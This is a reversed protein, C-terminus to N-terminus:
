QEEDSAEEETVLEPEPEKKKPARRKKAPAETAPEPAAETMKAIFKDAHIIHRFCFWHGSHEETGSTGCVDGKNNFGSCVHKVPVVKEKKPKNRSSKDDDSTEGQIHRWVRDMLEKKNGGVKLNHDKCYQNLIGTTCNRLDDLKEATAPDELKDAKLVKSTKAAAAAPLPTNFLHKFMDEICGVVLQQIDDKLDIGLDNTELFDDIRTEISASM